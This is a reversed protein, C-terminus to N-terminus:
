DMGVRISTLSSFPSHEKFAQWLSNAGTSLANTELSQSSKEILCCSCLHMWVETGIFHETFIRHLSLQCGWLAVKMWVSPQNTMPYGFGYIIVVGILDAVWIKNLQESCEKWNKLALDSTTTPTVTTWMNCRGCFWIQFMLQLPRPHAAHDPADPWWKPM